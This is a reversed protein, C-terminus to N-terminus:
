GDHKHTYTLQYRENVKSLITFLSLTPEKKNSKLSSQLKTGQGLRINIKVKFNNKQHLNYIFLFFPIM